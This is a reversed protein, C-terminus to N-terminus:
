AGRANAMEQELARELREIRARLQRLEDSAEREEAQQKAARRLQDMEDASISIRKDAFWVDKCRNWTWNSKALRAALSNVAHKWNVGEAFAGRAISQAEATSSMRKRESSWESM